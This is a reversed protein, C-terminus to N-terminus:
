CIMLSQYVIRREFIYQNSVNYVLLSSILTLCDEVVMGGELGGEEEVIQFLKDFAGEFAVLKQIDANGNVLSLLALIAENRIAERLNNLCSVLAAIGFASAVVCEQARRPRNSIIASLLQLAYIKCYFDNTHQLLSILATINEEKQTFEDTLWLAIDDKPAKDDTVLLLPSTYKKHRSRYLRSQRSRDQEDDSNIFLIILTELTARCTEQDENDKQLASTLGRLGGAAVQERYQRSFGKLGLVAARRDELLNSHLLRDCLKAITSIASQPKPQTQALLGSVLEM